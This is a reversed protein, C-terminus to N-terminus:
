KKRSLINITRISHVAKITTKKITKTKLEMHLLIMVAIVNALNAQV